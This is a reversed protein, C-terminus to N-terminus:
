SLWWSVLHHSQLTLLQVVHLDNECSRQIQSISRIKLNKM